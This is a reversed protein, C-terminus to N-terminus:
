KHVYQFCCEFWNSFLEFKIYLDCVVRWSNLICWIRERVGVFCKALSNWDFWRLGWMREICGDWFFLDDAYWTRGVKRNFTFIFSSFMGPLFFIWEIREGGSRQVCESNGWLSIDHLCRKFRLMVLMLLLHAFVFPPRKALLLMRCFRRILGKTLAHSKSCIRIPKDKKAPTHVPM